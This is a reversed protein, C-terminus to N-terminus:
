SKLRHEKKQSLFAARPDVRKTYVVMMLGEPFYPQCIKWVIYLWDIDKTLLAHEIEKVFLGKGAM